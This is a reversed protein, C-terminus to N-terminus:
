RTKHYRKVRRSKIKEPRRAYPVWDMNYGKPSMSQYYEIWYHERENLKDINCFEIIEWRFIHNAKYDKQMASNPHRGKKLANFHEQRRIFLHKSQGIYIKGNTQNVIKYIGSYGDGYRM